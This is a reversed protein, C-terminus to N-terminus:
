DEEWEEVPTTARGLFHPYFDNFFDSNILDNYHESEMLEKFASKVLDQLNDCTCKDLLDNSVGPYEADVAGDEVVCYSDDEVDMDDVSTPTAQLKSLSNCRALMRVNNDTCLAAGSIKRQMSNLRRVVPAVWPKEVSVSRALQCVAKQNCVAIGSFKGKDSRTKRKTGDRKLGKGPINKLECQHVQPRQMIRQLWNSRDSEAM